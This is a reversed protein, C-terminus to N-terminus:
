SPGQSHPKYCQGCTRIGFGGVTACYLTGLAIANVVAGIRNTVRAAAPKRQVVVIVSAIVVTPAVSMTTVMM